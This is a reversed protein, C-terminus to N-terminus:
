KQAPIKEYFILLTSGYKREDFKQLNVLNIEKYERPHIQIIIEGTETLWGPNTDLIELAASWMEKYQPPAIYIYDFQSDPLAKLMAFADARRVEALKSFGCTSLNDKITEVPLRNLDTFRIFIAERSLAEIGIAGTGGFVDWWRSDIVDSGLINFLAEKVMDTVPRTTDGPVTKLKRGKVLGAIVRLM